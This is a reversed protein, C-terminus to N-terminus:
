SAAGKRPATAFCVAGSVLVACLCGVTKFAPNDRITGFIFIPMGICMAAAVGTAVGHASLKKGALTLVTPLMTTARLAGYILFLNTVTLGPINAIGVAAALLAIMSGKAARMGGGFDSTLSAVACLNSDATSLLGSLVMFMFPIMVWAPFLGAVLEFNVLGSDSAVYDSGAAILGLVGMSLPVVAFFLAGLRFAGRLNKKRTSFARQWFCQDGFPAAMLGVATPLGFSFLVNLGNGDILSPYEGSFGSLGNMFSGAGDNVSLAWPVLLACCGLMFAMQLADTLVSAQIGSYQSYSFAVAALMVTIVSFPAGAAAALIKAGALLQVGTSLVALTTLELLYVGHVAKSRYKDRMYGSLTIGDPMQDRIRLAFPAFVILCAVNPVLFWFLGPLGNSYAKEASTFLAPAWIWTAAISMASRVFGLRGDAVHFGKVSQPRKSMLLTAAIMLAAYVALVIFGYM